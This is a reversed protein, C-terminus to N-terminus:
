LLFYLHFDKNDQTLCCSRLYSMLLIFWLFFFFSIFQVEDVYFKKRKLTIQTIGVEVYVM